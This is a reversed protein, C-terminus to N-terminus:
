CKITGKTRFVERAIKHIDQLLEISTNYLPAFTPTGYTHQSEGWKDTYWWGGPNTANDSSPNYSGITYGLDKGKPHLSGGKATNFTVGAGFEVFLAQGGGMSIVAEYGNDTQRVEDNTTIEGKYVPSISSLRAELAHIGIDCLRECFKKCKDDLSDKYKVLEEIARNVSSESLSIKLKM